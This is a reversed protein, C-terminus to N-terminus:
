RFKLTCVAVLALFIQIIWFRTVIKTESWGAFQYHHHLPAILFIRRRWIKYSFVQIAVSLAEAVFVGGVLVLLLEHKTVLAAMAIMGGLPLSGTDGMFIQAPHSNFWLFGLLAGIMAAGLVVMEQSGPVPTVNLYAAFHAHGAIYALVSYTLVVVASCGTALGDLGDTLNVANSTGVIVLVALPLFLLGLKLSFAEPKLFPVSLTDVWAADGGWYLAGGASLAILSQWFLKQRVSLGKAEPDTLKVHDDQFGLAGLSLMVALTLWIYGNSTVAWILTAGVATGLILLGGMTPTGEKERSLEHLTESDPKDMNEHVRRKRLYTIFRPGFFITALFATLAAGIARVSVYKLVELSSDLEHLYYLV